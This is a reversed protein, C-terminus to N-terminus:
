DNIKRIGCMKCTQVLSQCEDGARIQVMENIFEHKCDKSTYFKSTRETPYICNKVFFNPAPVDMSATQMVITYDQTAMNDDVDTLTNNKLVTPIPVNSKSFKKYFINLSSM